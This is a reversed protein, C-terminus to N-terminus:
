EGAGPAEPTEPAQIEPVSIEPSQVEAPEPEPVRIEAGEGREPEGARSSPEHEGRGRGAGDHEAGAPRYFVPMEKLLAPALAPDNPVFGVQDPRVEVSGQPNRIVVGGSNVKDYTGPTATATAGPAPNPIFMPEHDTGRIGISAFPTRITYNEKHTHGIMGTLARFGGQLLTIMSRETGDEKGDYRFVDIKMMTDPRVSIMGGDAMRIQVKAAASTVITEGVCVPAGKVLPRSGGAGRAEAVGQSFIVSGVPQAAEPQIGTGGMGTGAAVVGTGGMGSGEAVAGTGGMGSGAAVVGTGGMGSGGAPLGCGAPAAWASASMFAFAGMLALARLFAPNARRIKM